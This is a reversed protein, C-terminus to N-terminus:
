WLVQQILTKLVTLKERLFLFMIVCVCFFIQLLDFFFMRWCINKKKVAASYTRHNILVDGHASTSTTSSLVPYSKSTTVLCTVLLPTHLFELLLIM